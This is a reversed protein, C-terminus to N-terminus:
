PGKLIACGATGAAILKGTAEVEVRGEATAHRRGSHIVAASAIVRGPELTMARLYRVHLDTTAFGTGPPLTTHIAGGLATDLLAAAIGGHAGGLLNSMWETPELALKVRAPEIEIWEMGLLVAFPPPPPIQPRLWRQLFELGSLRLADEVIRAPDTGLEQLEEAFSSQLRRRASRVQEITLAESGENM